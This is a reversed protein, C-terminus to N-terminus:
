GGLLYLAPNLARGDLTLQLGLAADGGPSGGLTGLPQSRRVADGGGVILGELGVLASAWGNGHDIASRFLM